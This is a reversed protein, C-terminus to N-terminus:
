TFVSKSSAVKQEETEVTNKIQSSRAQIAESEVLAKYDQIAERSAMKFRGRWSIRLRGAKIERNLFQESCHLIVTVDRLPFM